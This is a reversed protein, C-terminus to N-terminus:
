VASALFEKVQLLTIVFFMGNQQGIEELIYVILLLCISRRIQQESIRHWLSPSHKHHPLM